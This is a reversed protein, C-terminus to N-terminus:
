FARLLEQCSSELFEDFEKDSLDAINNQKRPENAFEFLSVVKPTESSPRIRSEVKEFPPNLCELIDLQRNLENQVIEEIEQPSLHHGNEKAQESVVRKFECYLNKIGKRGPYFIITKFNFQM